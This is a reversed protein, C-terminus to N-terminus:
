TASCTASPRPTPATPPTARNRNLWYRTIPPRTPAYSPGTTASTARPHLAAVPTSAGVGRPDFGIWDYSAGVSGPVYDSLAPMSLGSGGPGGPNVLMVGRYTSSTHLRRTLALRIQHRDPNAHDLPVRLSGCQLDRYGLEPDTCSHWTITGTAAAAPPPTTAPFASWCDRRSWSPRSSRLCACCTPVKGPLAPPPLVLARAADGALRGSDLKLCPRSLRHPNRSGALARRRAADALLPRPRRRRLGPDLLRRHTRRVRDRVPTRRGPGAVAGPRPHARGRGAGARRRAPRADCARDARRRRPRPGRTSGASIVSELGPLGRVDRWAHDADLAEDFGHFLWPVGGLEACMETCARAISRWTATSSASPWAAPASSSSPPASTSWAGSTAPRARAARGLRAPRDRTRRGLGRGAGPSYHGEDPDAGLLLRDAGGATAAEADRAHLVVVDLHASESAGPGQGPTVITM